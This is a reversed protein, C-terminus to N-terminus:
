LFARNFVSIDNSRSARSRGRVKGASGSTNNTKNSGTPTAASLSLFSQGFLPEDRPMLRAPPVYQDVSITKTSRKLCEWGQFLWAGPLFYAWPPGSSKVSSPQTRDSASLPWDASEIINLLM